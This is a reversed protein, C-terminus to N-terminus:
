PNLLSNMHSATDLPSGITHNSSSDLRSENYDFCSETFDFRAQKLSLQSEELKIDSPINEHERTTEHHRLFSGFVVLHWYSSSLPSAFLFLSSCRLAAITDTRSISSLSLPRLVLKDLYFVFKSSDLHRAINLSLLSLLDHPSVNLIAYLFLLIPRPGMPMFSLCFPGTPM